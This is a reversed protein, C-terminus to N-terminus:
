PTKHLQIYRAVRNEFEEMLQRIEEAEVTVAQDNIKNAPLIRPSTGSLFLAEVHKLEQSFLVREEINIGLKHASSLIHKRTVGPLAENVPPTFLKHGLKYFFNTRSGETIHGASNILLVEYASSAALLSDAKKRTLTNGRKATPDHRELHATIIRVGSQYMQQTPFQHPIQEIREELKGNKNRLSLQIKGQDLKNLAILKMTHNRIQQFSLQKTGFTLQLSKELRAVHDELFLPVGEQVRFVEYIYTDNQNFCLNNDEKLTSGNCLIYRRREM